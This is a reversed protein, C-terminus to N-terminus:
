NAWESKKAAFLIGDNSPHVDVSMGCRENFWKALSPIMRDYDQNVFLAFSYLDFGESTKEDKIRSVGAFYNKWVKPIRNAITEKVWKYTKFLAEDNRENEDDIAKLREGDDSDRDYIERDFEYEPNWYKDEKLIINVSQKVIRHLDSETLRILKKNMNLNCNLRNNGHTAILNRKDGRINNAYQNGNMANKIDYAILRAKQPDLISSNYVYETINFDYGVKVQTVAQTPKDEIVIDLRVPANWTGNDVWTQM